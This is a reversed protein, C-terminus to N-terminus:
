GTLVATAVALGAAHTISVLVHRAGLATFRTQAPGGLVVQPPGDGGRIDIHHFGLGGAWGTGLAKLVAEKAAFRGALYESPRVREGAAQREQATFVRELFRQGHRECASAIRAVETLDTGLGLVM